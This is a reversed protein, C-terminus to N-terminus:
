RLWRSLHQRIKEEMVANFDLMLAETLGFWYRERKNITIDESVTIFRTAQAMTTGQSLIDSVELRVEVSADYRQSQQRSFTFEFGKKQPLQKEVASANVIVLLAKGSNGVARLRDKAWKKIAAAPQTPFLHEVNPARLPPQYHVAVDIKAVNLNIPTPHAFTLNPLKQIIVPTGCASLFLSLGMAFLFAMTRIPLASHPM